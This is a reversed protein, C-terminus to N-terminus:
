YHLLLSMDQRRTICTLSMHNTYTSLGHSWCYLLLIGDCNAGLKTPCPIAHRPTAAHAGHYGAAGTTLKRIRKKKGYNVEDKFVALTRESTDRLRFKNTTSGLLGSTEFTALLITITTVESINDHGNHALRIINDVSAWLEEIPSDPNWPKSLESSDAEVQEPTLTGYTSDLYQIMALPTAAM